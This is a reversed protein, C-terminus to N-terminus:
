IVPGRQGPGAHALPKPSGTDRIRESSEILANLIEPELTAHGATVVRLCAAPLAAKLEYATAPPCCIDYQGQVIMTPIRQIRAIDQLIRDDPQFPHNRFFHAEIRACALADADTETKDADALPHLFTMGNELRCWAHAAPLHVAPDPNMLRQYYAELLDGREEPPILDVFEKQGAPFFRGTENLFWDIEQRREMWIGRLLLSQVSEPHAEAYLLALTSGWSGGAVHWADIGLHNKLAELDAVLLDPSNDRTEAHPTSRGCGRQDFVVIRFAEPDFLQHVYPASGAGPGGHLYVVPIGDPNGFEEYFLTHTGDAPLRGQAYPTSKPYLGKM